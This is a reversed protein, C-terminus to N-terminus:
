FHRTHKKSKLISGYLRVFDKQNQEGVIQESVPFKATLENILHFMALCPRKVM